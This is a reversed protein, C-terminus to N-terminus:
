KDNLMEIRAKTEDVIGRERGYGTELNLKFGNNSPCSLKASDLNSEM